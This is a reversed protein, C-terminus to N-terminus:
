EERRVPREPSAAPGSDRRVPTVAPERMVGRMWDLVATVLLAQQEPDSGRVAFRRSRVEGHWPGFAAWFTGAGDPAAPGVAADTVLAVGGPLRGAMARAAESAFAAEAMAAPGEGSAGTGTVSAVGLLAPRTQASWGGAVAGEAGRSRNLNVAVAGGTSIEALLLRRGLATVESLVADELTQDDTAYIRDGLQGRVEEVLAAMRAQEEATNGPLFFSVDVRGAEFISSITVDAPLHVAGHLTQDIQSEGIGVFRVRASSGFTRLGFRQHLWPILADRVMPRLERPPGPLAVIVRTPDDFVLGVATGHPNPLWRGAVPTRAQRRLNEPLATAEGGSRRALAAIVDPNQRLAIGTFSSLTERTIDDDTPGLGGTVIILSAKSSAFALAQKLDEAEDGVCISGVCQLGLPRLARALYWTHGDPYVGRLLEGGTVLVLYREPANVQAAAAVTLPPSVSLLLGGMGACFMARYTKVPLAYGRRPSRTFGAHASRWRNPM